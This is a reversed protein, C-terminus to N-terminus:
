RAVALDAQAAVYKARASNAIATLAKLNGRAKELRKLADAAIKKKAAEAKKAAEIQALTEQHGKKRAIAVVSPEGLGRKSKNKIQGIESLPKM